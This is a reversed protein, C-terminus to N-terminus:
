GLILEMTKMLRNINIHYGGSVEDAFMLGYKMGIASSWDYHPNYFNSPRLIALVAGGMGLAYIAHSLHSGSLSIVMSCDIMSRLNTLAPDRETSIIDVGIKSLANIVDLENVITRQEGSQGRMLYFIRGAGARTGILQRVRDRLVHLRAAKHQNQHIDDFIHLEDFYAWQLQDYSQRFASLYFETDVWSAHAVSVPTGYIEALLHTAVDDRLWDGFFHSGIFSSRLAACTYTKAIQDQRPKWRPNGVLKSGRSSLLRDGRLYIKRLHTHTTAGTWRRGSAVSRLEKSLDVDYLTGKAKQLEDQLFYAPKFHSESEPYLVEHSVSSSNIADQWGLRRRARSALLLLDTTMKIGLGSLQVARQKREDVACRPDYM